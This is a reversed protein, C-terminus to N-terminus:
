WRINAIASTDFKALAKKTFGSPQRNRHQFKSIEPPLKALDTVVEQTVWNHHCSDCIRIRWVNQESRRSQPIRHRYGGCKPCQM